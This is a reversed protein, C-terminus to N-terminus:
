NDDDKWDGPIVFKKAKRTKPDKQEVIKFVGNQFYKDVIIKIRSKDKIPDLELVQAVVVGIWNPARTDARYEGKGAASRMTHMDAVTVDDFANPFKWPEVAQVNDGNALEVSALRFWKAATPPAMNRKALDIRFYRHRDAASINGALEAESSSMRNLIRGSRCANIGSVAGRADDMTLETQGQAPKRVHHVLEIACNTVSAVAKLENVIAAMSATDEPCRHFSLLPDLMLVDISYTSITGILDESARKNTVPGGKGMAALVLSDPADVISDLLLNGSSQLEQGDIDHHECIATVRRQLEDVPDDGSIYWARSPEKPKEGLLPLTSAMVVAECLATSSKGTGGPAATMSVYGRIYHNGYLWQRAPIVKPDRWNFCTPVLMTGAPFLQREDSGNIARVKTKGKISETRERDLRYDIAAQRFTDTYDQETV